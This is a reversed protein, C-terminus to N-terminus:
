KRVATMSLDESLQWLADAGSLEPIEPFVPFVCCVYGENKLTHLQADLPEDPQTTFIMYAGAKETLASPDLRSGSNMFDASALEVAAIRVADESDLEICKWAGDTAYRLSCPVGQRVLLMLFGLAGELMTDRRKLGEEGSEPRLDLIVTPRVASAAEDMRVMLKNRKASLKWNIRRLNDGPVYDRHVYGPLSQNTFSASSEEEEEDMTLVVDSVTRLMVNAGTLSPISPIVGVRLQDPLQRIRFRFLGLYDEIVPTEVWLSGSGAHSASYGMPIELVEAPTMASQVTRDDDPLFNADTGLRLKLFPVPLRGVAEAKVNVAFHCGKQVTDPSQMTLRIRRSAVWALLASLAPAFLLFAFVVVGVDADLYFTFLYTILLMTLLALVLKIRDLVVRFKSNHRKM